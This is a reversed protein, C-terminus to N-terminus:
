DPFLAKKAAESLVDVIIERAGSAVNAGLKSMRNRFRISAAQVKPSDKVLEQLDDELEALEEPKADSAASVLEVVGDIKRKTWPFSEGCDLCYSPPHYRVGFGGRYHGRIPAECDPCEMITREGCKSCFTERFEPMDIASSTAVHGNPCVQATDWDGQATM